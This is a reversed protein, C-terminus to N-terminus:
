EYYKSRFERAKQTNIDSTEKRFLKSFYKATLYEDKKISFHCDISNLFSIISRKLKYNIQTM